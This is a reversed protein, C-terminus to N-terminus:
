GMETVTVLYVHMPQLHIEVPLDITFSWVVTVTEDVRTILVIACEVVEKNTVILFTTLIEIMTALHEMITVTASKVPIVMLPLEQEGHSTTLYLSVGNVSIVSYFYVDLMLCSLKSYDTLYTSNLGIKLITDYNFQM